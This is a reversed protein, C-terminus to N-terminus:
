YLLIINYNFFKIFFGKIFKDENKLYNSELLIKSKILEEQLNNIENKLSFKDNNINNIKDFNDELSKTLNDIIIEKLNLKNQLNKHNEEFKAVNKNYLSEKDLNKEIIEKFKEEYIECKCCNGTKKKSKLLNNLEYNKKKLNENKNEFEKLEKKLIEENKLWIKKLNFMELLIHESSKIIEKFNEVKEENKCHIEDEFSKIKQILETINQNQTENLKKLLANEEILNVSVIEDKNNNEYYFVSKKREETILDIYNSSNKRSECPTKTSLTSKRVKFKSLREKYNLLM